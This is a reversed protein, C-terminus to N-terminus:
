NLVHPNSSPRRVRFGFADKSDDEPTPSYRFGTNLVDNTDVLTRYLFAQSSPKSQSPDPVCTVDPNTSTLYHRPPAWTLALGCSQQLASARRFAASSVAQHRTAFARVALRTYRKLSITFVLDIHKYRSLLFCLEPHHCRGARKVPGHEIM